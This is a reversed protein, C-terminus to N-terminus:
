AYIAPVTYGGATLQMVAGNLRNGVGFGFRHEWDASQIPYESEKAILALGEPLGTGALDKRQMLPKPMDLEIALLYNAPIWRWEVIFAGRKHRGLVRGPVRPPLQLPTTINAGPSLFPGYVDHMQTLNEIVSTQANNIFVVINSGGTPAGFHEELTDTLTVIPDNTDSIAASLYGSALYHQHTAAETEVGILPPYIAADANALPEILLTGWLPDAFTRETNNLIAKIMEFRVTNIDQFQVTEIHRELDQVTMYAYSIRDAAIEAGYGKLPLGIDWGNYAKVAANPAASTQGREQLRGGGPLKYRLKHDDTTREVFVSMAQNLELNWRDMLVKIADYIVSQGLTSLFVRDSDALGLLGFIGAM